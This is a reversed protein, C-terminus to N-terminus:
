NANKVYITEARWVRMRARRAARRWKFLSLCPFVRLDRIRQLCAGAACERRCPFAEARGKCPRFVAHGAEARIISIHAGLPAVLVFVRKVRCFVLLAYESSARGRPAIAGVHFLKQVAEDRYARGGGRNDVSARWTAPSACIDCLCPHFVRLM